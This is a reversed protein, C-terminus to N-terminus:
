PTSEIVARLSVHINEIAPTAPMLSGIHNHSELKLPICGGSFVEIGRHANGSLMPVLAPGFVKEVILIFNGDHYLFFLKGIVCPGIIVTGHVIM